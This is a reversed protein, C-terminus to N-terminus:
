KPRKPWYRVPAQGSLEIWHNEYAKRQDPTAEGLVFVTKRRTPDIAADEINWVGVVLPGVLAVLASSIRAAPNKVRWYQRAADRKKEEDWSEHWGMWRGDPEESPVGLRVLVADPLADTVTLNARQASSLRKVDQAKYIVATGVEGISRLVGTASWRTVQDGSVGLDQAIKTGTWLDM